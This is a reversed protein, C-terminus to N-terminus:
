EIVAFSTIFVEGLALVEPQDAAVRVRALTCDLASGDSPNPNKDLNALILSRAQALSSAVVSIVALGGAFEVDQVPNYTWAYLNKSSVM